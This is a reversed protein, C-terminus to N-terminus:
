KCVQVPASVASIPISSAAAIPPRTDAGNNIMMIAQRVQQQVPGRPLIAPAGSQASPAAALGPPTVDGPARVRSVQIPTAFSPAGGVVGSTSGSTVALTGPLAPDGSLVGTAATGAALQQQHQQQRLAQLQKWQREQETEVVRRHVPM